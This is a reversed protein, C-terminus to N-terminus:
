DALWEGKGRSELMVDAFLDDVPIPASILGGQHSYGILTELNRRNAEGLGYEWPDPGLLERQAEWEDMFWALPVPRPNALRRYAEAKAADFARALNTAVWPHEELIEKRIATVHMIPFIGTRAFYAREEARHNRFLRAVRPDGRLVPAIIDPHLAADLDGEALMEAVDSGAPARSLRIGPPTEFAIDEDLETVWEISSLDVGHENALLGRLYLTATTQYTKLGVRRGELDGPAAIGSAANVYVFGHRFRRHLFVPIASFPLGRDRAMLYSSGSLECVDFERGRIMRWHRTSSDMGTLVNLSIGDAEVAGEKLARVIEYDGCALTLELRRAM